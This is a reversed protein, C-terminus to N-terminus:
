LIVDEILSYLIHSWIIVNSNAIISGVALMGNVFLINFSFFQERYTLAIGCKTHAKWSCELFLYINILICYRIYSTNDLCSKWVYLTWALATTIFINFNTIWFALFCFDSCLNELFRSVHYKHQALIRM